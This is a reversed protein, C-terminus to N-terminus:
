IILILITLGCLFGLKVYLRGYREYDAKAAVIYENLSTKIASFYQLQTGSDGKGLSSFYEIIFEREELSFYGMNELANKCDVLLDKRGLGHLFSVAFVGFDGKESCSKAFESLSRKYYAVENLFRENFVSMKLFFDKRKRYKKAFAYGCFTSFAVLSIGLLIKLM